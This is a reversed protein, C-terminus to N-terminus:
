RSVGRVGTRLQRNLRAKAEDTEKDVLYTLYTGPSAVTAEDRWAYYPFTPFLLYSGEAIITAM